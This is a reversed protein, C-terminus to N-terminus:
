DTGNGTVVSCGLLTLAYFSTCVSNIQAMAQSLVFIALLTLAHFSTCVSSIQVMAQPLVFIALLTLAHFSTCVTNIQTMAQSLVVAKVCHWYGTNTYPWAPCKCHGASVCPIAISICQVVHTRVHVGVCM